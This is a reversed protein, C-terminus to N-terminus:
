GGVSQSLNHPAGELTAESTLIGTVIAQRETFWELLSRVCHFAHDVTPRAVEFRGGFDMIAEVRLRIAASKRTHVISMGHLLALAAHASQLRAADTDPFPSISVVWRRRTCSIPAKQCCM